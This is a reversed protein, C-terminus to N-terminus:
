GEIQTPSLVSPTGGGVFVTDVKTRGILNRKIEIEGLLGEVYDNIEQDSRYRGRTFPCFSCITECFPVHVYVARRQAPNRELAWLLLLATPAPLRDESVNFPYYWNFVPLQRNFTFLGNRRRLELDFM